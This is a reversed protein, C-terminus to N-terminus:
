DKIFIFDNWWCLMSDCTDGIEECNSEIIDSAAPCFVEGFAMGIGGIMAIPLFIFLLLSVCCNEQNCILECTFGTIGIIITGVFIM